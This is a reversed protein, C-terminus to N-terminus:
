GWELATAAKLRPGDLAAGSVAAAGGRGRTMRELTRTVTLGAQALPHGGGEHRVTDVFVEISRASGGVSGGVSEGAFEGVSGGVSERVSGGASGRASEAGSGGVAALLAAFVADDEAAVPGLHARARGPRLMAYGVAGGEREALWTRVGPEGAMHALLRSRDVGAAAHDYARIADLDRPGAPRVRVDSAEAEGEGTSLVGVWREVTGVTSFGRRRYLPAGASTADLGITAVKQAEPTALVADVVAAGIGRGRFEPHAIVMGLWALADGYVALTATGVLRGESWAGVVTTPHLAILRRWDQADQNWGVSAALAEGAAADKPTLPALDVM